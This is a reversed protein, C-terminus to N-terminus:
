YKTGFYRVMAGQCQWGEGVSCTGTHGGTVEPQPECNQSNFKSSSSNNDNPLAHGSVIEHTQHALRSIVVGMATPITEM